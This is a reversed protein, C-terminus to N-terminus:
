RHEDNNMPQPYWSLPREVREKWKNVVIEVVKTLGEMEEEVTLGSFNM